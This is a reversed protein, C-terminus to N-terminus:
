SALRVSAPPRAFRANRVVADVLDPWLPEPLDHGMGPLLVFRAGPIARATARGHAPRLLRDVSGHLVVSPVDIRRLEKARSAAALIAHLQRPVGSRDPDREWVEAFYARAKAEDYYKPSGTLQLLRLQHDVFLDRGRPPPALMHSTVDRSPWPLWPESTTSMLSALSRVREPYRIAVLQAIMGGMSAGVVHASEIGLVDLLGTVDGAMDSLTYAPRLPLRLSKKLLSLALNPKPGAFRSSFGVDRHDFRLVFFGRKALAECLGDRWGIMQCGLGMILVVPESSPSGFSDYAIRIGNAPAYRM